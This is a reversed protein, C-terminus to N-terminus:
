NKTLDYNLKFKIILFSYFLSFMQFVILTKIMQFYIKQEQTFKVRSTNMENISNISNAEKILMLNKHLPMLNQKSM